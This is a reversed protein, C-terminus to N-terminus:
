TVEMKFAVLPGPPVVIVPTGELAIHEHAVGRAIAHATTPTAIRTM